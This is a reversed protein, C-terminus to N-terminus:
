RLSPEEHLADVRANIDGALAEATGDPVVITWNATTTDIDLAEGSRSAVTIRKGRPARYEAGRIGIGGSDGWDYRAPRAATITALPITEGIIARFRVADDDVRLSVSYTQIIYISSLMLIVSLATSVPLLAASVILWVAIFVKVGTSTVTRVPSSHPGRPLRADPPGDAAVVEPARAATAIAAATAVGVGLGAVTGVVSWVSGASVGGASAADLQPVLGDASVGVMFGAFVPSGPGISRRLILPTRRWSGVLGMLLVMPVTLIGTVVLVQTLGGYGDAEGSTRFHLGLPDPLRSRVSLAWALFGGLALLPVAVFGTLAVGDLPRPRTAHPATTLRDMGAVIGRRVARLVSTQGRGATRPMSDRNNARAACESPFRRGIRRSFM